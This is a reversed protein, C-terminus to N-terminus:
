WSRPHPVPRSRRRSLLRATKYLALWYPLAQELYAAQGPAVTDAPLLFRLSRGDAILELVAANRGDPLVLREVCRTADLGSWALLSQAETQPHRVTIGDATFVLNLGSTTAAADANGALVVGVLEM